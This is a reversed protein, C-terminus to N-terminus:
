IESSATTIRVSTNYNVENWTIASFYGQNFRLQNRVQDKENRCMCEDLKNSM